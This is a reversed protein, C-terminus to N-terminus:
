HCKDCEFNRVKIHKVQMHDNLHATTIYKKDCNPCQYRYRDKRNNLQLKLNINENQIPVKSKIGIDENSFNVGLLKGAELFNELERESVECQGLYAFWLIIELNLNDIRKLVINDQNNNTSIINRLYFIISCLIVKHASITHEGQPSIQWAKTRGYSSWHAKQISQFIM